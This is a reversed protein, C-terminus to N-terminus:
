GKFPKTPPKYAVRRLLPQRAPEARRLAHFRIEGRALDVEARVLRSAWAPSVAFCQGLLHVAGSEYTRRVFIALGRLPRRLFAKEDFGGPFPRRAPAGDRREAARENHARPAM